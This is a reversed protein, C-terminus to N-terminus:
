TRYQDSKRVARRPPAHHTLLSSSVRNTRDRAGRGRADCAGPATHDTQEAAVVPRRVVVSLQGDVATPDIEAPLFTPAPAPGWPTAAAGAGDQCGQTASKGKEQEGYEEGPWSESRGGDIAYRRLDCRDELGVIKRGGSVRDEHLGTNVGFRL